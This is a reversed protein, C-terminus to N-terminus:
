ISVHHVPALIVDEQTMNVTIGVHVILALTTGHRTAVVVLVHRIDEQVLEQAHDMDVGRPGIGM